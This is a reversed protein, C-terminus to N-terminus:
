RCKTVSVHPVSRRQLHKFLPPHRRSSGRRMNLGFSHHLTNRRLWVWCCSPCQEGTRMIRPRGQQLSLLSELGPAWVKEEGSHHLPLSRSCFLHGTARRFSVMDPILINTKAPTSICRQWIEGPKASTDFFDDTFASFNKILNPKLGEPPENTLKVCVQTLFDMLRPNPLKNTQNTLERIRAPVCAM